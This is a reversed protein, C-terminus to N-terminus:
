EAAESGANPGAAPTSEDLLRPVIPAGGVGWRAPPYENFIVRVIEQPVRLIRATETTLSSMLEKIDEDSTGTLINVQIWPM